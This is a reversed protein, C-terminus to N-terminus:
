LIPSLLRILSEQIRLLKGRKHYDERTMIKSKSVDIAFQRELDQAVRNDYILANAEFNLKFSRIDM